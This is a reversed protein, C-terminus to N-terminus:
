CCSMCDETQQQLEQKLQRATAEQQSIQRQQAAMIWKHRVERALGAQVQQELEAIRKRSEDKNSVAHNLLLSFLEWINNKTVEVSQTVRVGLDTEKSPQKQEGGKM